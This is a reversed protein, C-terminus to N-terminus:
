VLLLDVAAVGGNGACRNDHETEGVNEFEREFRDDQEELDKLLQEQRENVLVIM